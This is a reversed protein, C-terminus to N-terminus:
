FVLAVAGMFSAFLLAAPLALNEANSKRPGQRSTTGYPVKGNRGNSTALAVPDITMKTAHKGTTTTTAFTQTASEDGGSNQYAEDTLFVIAAAPAPVKIQCGATPDCPITQVNLDGYLRGDSQFMQGM